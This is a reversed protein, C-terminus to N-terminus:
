PVERGRHGSHRRRPREMDRREVGLTVPRYVPSAKDKPRRWITGNRMWAILVAYGYKILETAVYDWERGVYGAAALRDALDKDALLRDLRGADAVHPDLWSRPVPRAVLDPGHPNM